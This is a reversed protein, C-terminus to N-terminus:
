ARHRRLATRPGAASCPACRGARRPLVFRTSKVSRCRDPTARRRDKGILLPELLDQLVQERIGELEGLAAEHIRRDRRGRGTPASFWCGSGPACRTHCERHRSLPMPMGASLCAVIKSANWCASPLVLRFYPPVPRPRAILRSSARSSPPSISDLALFPPAAAERQEQRLVVADRRHLRLRQAREQRSGVDLRFGVRAVAFGVLRCGSPARARRVIPRVNQRAFFRHQDDFVIAVERLPEEIHGACFPKLAITSAAPLVASPRTRSNEGAAIVSSMLEARCRHSSLAPGGSPRGSARPMDRDEDDRRM